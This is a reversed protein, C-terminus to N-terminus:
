AGPEPSTHWALLGPLAFGFVNIVAHYRIMQPITLWDAHTYHGLAYAAGLAMGAFLSIGSLAFLISPLPSKARRALRFQLTAIIFGTVTMVIAALLEPLPMGQAALTIGVAVAPVSIIVAICAVKAMADRLQRAGLGTLILLLLGAYHFHAGTLLVIPEEFGLFGRGLRSAFTWAGGVAVYILGATVALEAHTWLQRETLRALGVLALLLTFALWPATLVA